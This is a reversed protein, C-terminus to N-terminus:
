FRLRELLRRLLSLPRSLAFRSLLRNQDASFKRGLVMGGLAAALLDLETRPACGSELFPPERSTLGHAAEAAARIFNLGGWTSAGMTAWTRANFELLEVAGGPHLRFDINLFGSYGTKRVIQMAYSRMRDHRLFRIKHKEPLQVAYRLIEGESALASFGADVGGAYPQAILRPFRYDPNNLIRREFEERSRAIVVGRSATEGAPKFVLPLGFRAALADFDAWQPSGILITEPVPIRLAQCLAFFNFKDRLRLSVEPASVPASIWAGRGLASIFDCGADDVPLVFRGRPLSELFKRAERRDEPGLEIPLHAICGRLRALPALARPGILVFEAFVDSPLSFVAGRVLPLTRGVVVCACSVSERAVRTQLDLM